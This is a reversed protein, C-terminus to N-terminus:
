KTLSATAAIAADKGLAIVWDRQEPTEPVECGRAAGVRQFALEPSLGSLVLLSTTILASRGIGQRCHVGINKGSALLRSLDKLL